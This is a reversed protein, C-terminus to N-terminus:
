FGQKFGILVDSVAITSNSTKSHGHGGLGVLGTSDNNISAYQAYVKLCKFKFLLVASDDFCLTTFLICKNPSVIM